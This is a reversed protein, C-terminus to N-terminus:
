ILLQTTDDYLHWGGLVLRASNARARPPAAVHSPGQLRPVRRATPRRVSRLAGSSLRSQPLNPRSPKASTQRSPPYTNRRLFSGACSGSTHICRSRVSYDKTSGDEGPALPPLDSLADSVTIAPPLVGFLTAQADLQTIPPPPSLPKSGGVLIVRTRRQPIGYEEAKLKWASLCKAEDLLERRVMEFM